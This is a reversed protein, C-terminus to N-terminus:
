TGVQAQDGRNEGQRHQLTKGASGRAGHANLGGNEDVASRGQGQHRATAERKAQQGKSSDRSRRAAWLETWM